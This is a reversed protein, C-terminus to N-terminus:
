PRVPQHPELWLQRTTRDLTMKFQTLFDGGLLGDVSLVRPFFVSVLDRWAQAAAHEGGVSPVRPSLVSVGVELNEVMAEGVTLASLQM